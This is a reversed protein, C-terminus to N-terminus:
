IRIQGIEILNLDRLLFIEVTMEDHLEMFKLDLALWKWLLYIWLTANYSQMFVLIRTNWQMSYDKRLKPRLIYM